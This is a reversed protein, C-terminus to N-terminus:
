ARRRHSRCGKWRKRERHPSFPTRTTIRLPLRHSIQARSRLVKRHFQTTPWARYRRGERADRLTGKKGARREGRALPHGGFGNFPIRKQPHAARARPHEPSSFCQNKMSNSVAKTTCPSFSANPPKTRHADGETTDLNSNTLPFSIASAFHNSPIQKQSFTQPM